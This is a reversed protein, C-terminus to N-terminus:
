HDREENFYNELLEKIKPPQWGEPKLVKGDARYHVTGDPQRKAMNSKQVLEWAQDFQLGMTNCAQYIVYVSDVAGDLIGALTDLNRHGRVWRALMPILEDNVEEDILRIALEVDEKVVAEGPMDSVRKRMALMFERQQLFHSPKSKGFKM